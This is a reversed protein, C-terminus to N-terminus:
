SELMKKYKEGLQRMLEIADDDPISSESEDYDSLDDESLEADKEDACSENLVSLAKQLKDASARLKAVLEKAEALETKARSANLVKEDIPADDKKDSELDKLIRNKEELESELSTIKENIEELEARRKEGLSIKEQLKTICAIVENRDFGGFLVKKLIIEQSM